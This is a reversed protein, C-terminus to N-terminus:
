DDEKNRLEAKLDLLHDRKHEKHNERNIRIQEDRHKQETIRSAARTKQASEADLLYDIEVRRRDLTANQIRDVEENVAMRKEMAIQSKSYREDFSRLEEVDSVVNDLQNAALIVKSVKDGFLFWGVAFVVAVVAVLVVPTATVIAQDKIKDNTDNM